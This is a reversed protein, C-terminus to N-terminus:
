RGHEEQRHRDQPQEDFSRAFGVTTLLLQDSTTQIKGLAATIKAGGVTEVYGFGVDWRM